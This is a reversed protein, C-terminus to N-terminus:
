GGHACGVFVQATLQWFCGFFPQDGANGAEDAAVQEFGQELQALLDDAEVVKGGAPAIVEFGVRFQGQHFIGDSVAGRDIAEEIMSRDSTVLNLLQKPRLVRSSPWFREGSGGAMIVPLVTLVSM